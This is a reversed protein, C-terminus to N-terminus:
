GMHSHQYDEVKSYTPKYTSGTAYGWQDNGLLFNEFVNSWYSYNRGNLWVSIAQLKDGFMTEIKAVFWLLTLVLCVLINNPTEIFLDLGLSLYWYSLRAEIGFRVHLLLSAVALTEIGECVLSSSIALDSFTLDHHVLALAEIGECVLSALIVICSTAFYFCVLLRQSSPAFLIMICSSMFDHSLSSMSWSTMFWLPPFIAHGLRLGWMLCVLGHLSLPALTRARIWTLFTFCHKANVM